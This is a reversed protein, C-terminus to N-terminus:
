KEPKERRALLGIAIFALGVLIWFISWIGSMVTAGILIWLVGLGAHIWWPFKRKEKEM